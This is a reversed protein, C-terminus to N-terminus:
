RGAGDLFLAVTREVQEPVEGARATLLPQSLALLARALWAADVDSRLAGSTRGEELLAEIPGVFSAQYAALMQARAEASLNAAEREALRMVSRQRDRHRAIGALLERVQARTGGPAATARAVIVGAQEVGALLVALLLAQKDRFHHYLGAKSLQCREAIERMSAGHFGREVFLATAADM